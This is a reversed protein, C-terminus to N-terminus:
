TNQRLTGNRRIESIQESKLCSWNNRESNWVYYQHISKESLLPRYKYLIHVVIRDKSSKDIRQESNKDFFGLNRLEELYNLTHYLEGQPGLQIKTEHYNKITKFGTLYTGIQVCLKLNNFLNNTTNKSAVIISLPTADRIQEDNTRIYSKLAPERMKLYNLIAFFAAVAGAYGLIADVMQFGSM